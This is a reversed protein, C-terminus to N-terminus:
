ELPIKSIDCCTSTHAELLMGAEDRAVKSTYDTPGDCRAPNRDKLAQERAAERDNDSLATEPRSFRWPEPEERFQHKMILNMTPTPAESAESLLHRLVPSVLHNLILFVDHCAYQSYLLYLYLTTKRM